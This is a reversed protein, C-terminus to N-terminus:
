EKEKKGNQKGVGLAAARTDPLWAWKTGRIVARVATESVGHQQALIRVPVRGRKYSERIRIVSEETLKAGPNNRGRKWAPNRQWYQRGKGLCDAMNDADTGLFIHGPNVCSPIDCRHCALMGEPIPGIYAEYTVRHATAFKGAVKFRGYGIGGVGGTWLWCGSNPEPSIFKWLRAEEEASLPKDTM